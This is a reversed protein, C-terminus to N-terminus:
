SICRIGMRKRMIFKRHQDGIATPSFYGLVVEASHKTLGGSSTPNHANGSAPNPSNKSQRPVCQHQLKSIPRKNPDRRPIHRSKQPSIMPLLSPSDLVYEQSSQDVALHVAGYSGRGIEQKITYRSEVGYLYTHTGRFFTFYGPETTESM